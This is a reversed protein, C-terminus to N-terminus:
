LSLVIGIDRTKFWVTWQDRGAKALWMAFDGGGPGPSHKQMGVEWIAPKIENCQPNELLLAAKTPLIREPDMCKQMSKLDMSVRSNVSGDDNLIEIRFKGAPHDAQLGVNFIWPKGGFIGETSAKSVMSVIKKKPAAGPLVAIAAAAAAGGIFTRRTFDNM